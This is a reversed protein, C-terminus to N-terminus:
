TEVCTDTEARAGIGTPVPSYWEFINHGIFKGDSSLATLYRRRDRSGSTYWWDIFVM